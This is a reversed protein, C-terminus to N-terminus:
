MADVVSSSVQARLRRLAESKSIKGQVARRASGRLRKLRRLPGGTLGRDILARLRGDDGYAAGFARLLADARDGAVKLISRVVAALEDALLPDLSARGRWAGELDFSVLREGHVLVHLISAHEHVFRVDHEQM